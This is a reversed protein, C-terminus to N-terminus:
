LKGKEKAYVAVLILALGGLILYATKGPVKLTIPNSVAGAGIGNGTATNEELQTSTDIAQMVSQAASPPATVTPPQYVAETGSGTSPSIPSPRAPNIARRLFNKVASSVGPPTATITM